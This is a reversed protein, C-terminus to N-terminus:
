LLVCIPHASVVALADRQRCITTLAVSCAEHMHVRLAEIGANHSATIHISSSTYCCIYMCLLMDLFGADLVAQCATYNVQALEIVFDVVPAAVHFEPPDQKQSHVYVELLEAHM